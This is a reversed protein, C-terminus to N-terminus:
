FVIVYPLNNFYFSNEYNRKKHSGDCYPMHKSDKCGCLFYSGTHSLSFSIPYKGTGHHSYRDCMPQFDRKGCQCFSNTKGEKLLVKIPENTKTYLHRM